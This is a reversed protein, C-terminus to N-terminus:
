ATSPRFGWFTAALDPRDAAPTLKLGPMASKCILDKAIHSGLCPIDPEAINRAAQQDSISFLVLGADGNDWNGEIAELKFPQRPLEHGAM